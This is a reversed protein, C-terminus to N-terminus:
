SMRGIPWDVDGPRSGEAAATVLGTLEERLKMLARRETEWETGSEGM